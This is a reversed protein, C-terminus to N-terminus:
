YYKSISIGFPRVYFFSASYPEHKRLSKEQEETKEGNREQLHIRIQM